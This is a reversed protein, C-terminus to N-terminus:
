KLVYGKKTKEAILKEMEKIAKADDDFSKTTSQGDTGIKGWRINLNSGDQIVEYFKASSGGKVEDNEGVFELYAM